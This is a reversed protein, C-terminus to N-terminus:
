SGPPGQPGPKADRLKALYHRSKVSFVISARPQLCHSSSLLCSCSLLKRKLGTAKGPTAAPGQPQVWQLRLHQNLARSWCAKPKYVAAGAGGAFGAGPKTFRKLPSAAGQVAQPPVPVQAHPARRSDGGEWWDGPRRGSSVVRTHAPLGEPIVWLM